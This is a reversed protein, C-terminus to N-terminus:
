QEIMQLYKTAYRVGLIRLGEAAFHMKDQFTPLGAASVCGTYDDGDSNLAMLLQNVPAIVTEGCIFPKNASFWPETRFNNIVENLKNKYYDTSEWDSEGQHWLIGDISSKGPLDNIAAVVKQRIKQNFEGGYDWHSIAAGPATVLIIGVVKQPRREALMKAFHFGFNNSPDTTPHNRPHWNLDWVQHLDAIQWGTDTYAFVRSDSRDLDADFATGAGLANSQGTVLILDTIDGPYFVGSVASESVSSTDDTVPVIVNSDPNGTTAATTESVSNTSNVTASDAQVVPSGSNGANVGQIVLESDCGALVACFLAVACRLPIRSYM